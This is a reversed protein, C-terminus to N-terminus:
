LVSCYEYTSLCKYRNKQPQTLSLRMRFGTLANVIHKNHCLALYIETGFCAKYNRYMEFRQSKTLHDHWNQSNYDLLRQKFEESFGTTSQVVPNGWVFGFGTQNRHGLYEQRKEELKLLMDYAWRTSRNRNTRIIKKTLRKFRTHLLQHRTSM